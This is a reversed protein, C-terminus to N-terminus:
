LLSKCVKLSEEMDIVEEIIMCKVEEYERVEWDELDGKLVSEVYNLQGELSSIKDLHRDVTFKM